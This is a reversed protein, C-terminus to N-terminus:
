RTPGLTAADQNIADAPSSGAVSTVDQTQDQVVECTIQFPVKYPKEYDASFKSVVVLYSFEGWTLTCPLGSRRVYDLFRARGTATSNDPLDGTADASGLFWGSWSLAADDPGMADVVRLGGVLKHTTLMQEGGIAIKEPVEAGAFVFDGQATTLTLTVPNSM